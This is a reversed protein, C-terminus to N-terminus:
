VMSSMLTVVGHELLLSASILLVAIAIAVSINKNKIETMQDFKKNLLMFVKMVLWLIGFAIASALIFFFIIKLITIIIMLAAIKQEAM